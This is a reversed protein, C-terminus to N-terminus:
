NLVNVEINLNDFCQQLAYLLPAENDSETTIVLRDKDTREIHLINGRYFESDSGVLVKILFRQPIYLGLEDEENEPIGLRECLRKIMDQVGNLTDASGKLIYEYLSPNPEGPDDVDTWEDKYEIDGSLDYYQKAKTRNIFIGQAEDGWRYKQYLAYAAWRNGKDCLAQLTPIDHIFEAYEKDGRKVRELYIKDSVKTDYFATKLQFCELDENSLNEVDDAIEKILELEEETIEMNIMEHREIPEEQGTEEDKFIEVWTRYHQELMQRLKELRTDMNNQIKNKM